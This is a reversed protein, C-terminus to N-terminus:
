TFNEIIKPNVCNRLFKNMPVMDGSSYFGLMLQNFEKQKKVPVNIIPYGAALLIGNMMFRGMRKNVDWFLQARAMRLFATIARDYIDSCASVEVEIKEWVNEFNKPSPPEYESGSITVNGTRFAGWELAEEKGAIKHIELVTKKSFSFNGDAVITFLHKWADAQNLAMNQDSIKHGGVTIGDLLTQVEPLTMAVGELNVADYVLSSLDRIALQKAMALNPNMGWVTDTAITMETVLHDVLIKELGSIGLSM